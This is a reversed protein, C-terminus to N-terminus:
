PGVSASRLRCRVARSDGLLTGRLRREAVGGGGGGCWSSGFSASRRAVTALISCGGKSRAAWGELRCATAGGGLWVGAFGDDGGRDVSRRSALRPVAEVPRTLTPAPPNSLEESLPRM